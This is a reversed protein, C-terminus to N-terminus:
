GIRWRNDCNICTIFITSSEDASRVQLEYYTCERKKCRGCKFLDTKAEKKTNLMQEDKKLKEDLIERWKEPFVCYPEMFCVEHPKFENSRVRDLLKMNKICSTPDLNSIVSRAKNIYCSKFITNEWTQPTNKSKCFEISWNFIGIEIDKCYDNELKTKDRLKNFCNSRITTALM